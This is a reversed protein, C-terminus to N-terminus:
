PQIPAAGSHVVAALRFVRTTEFNTSSASLLDFLRRFGSRAWGRNATDLVGNAGGSTERKSRTDTATLSSCAARRRHHIRRVYSSPPIQSSIHVCSTLAYRFVDRDTRERMIYNQTQLLTMPIPSKNCFSFHPFVDMLSNKARRNWRIDERL